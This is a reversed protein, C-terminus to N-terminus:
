RRHAENGNQFILGVLGLVVWIFLLVIGNSLIPIMGVMQTALTITILGGGIFSSSAMSMLEQFRFSMIGFIMAFVVMFASQIPNIETISTLAQVIAHSSGSMSLLLGIMFGALAGLIISYIVLLIMALVSGLLAGVLGGLLFAGLPELWVWLGTMAVTRSVVEAAVLGGILFGGMRPSERILVGGMGVLVFGVIVRLIEIATIGIM